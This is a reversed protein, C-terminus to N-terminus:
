KVILQEVKDCPVNTISIVNYFGYSISTVTGFCLNSRPDKSYVVNLATSKAVEKRPANGGNIECSAIALSLSIAIIVTLTRM